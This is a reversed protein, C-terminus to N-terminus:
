REDCGETTDFLACGDVREARYVAWNRDPFALEWTIADTGPDVMRISSPGSGADPCFGCHGRTILVSGDPLRDADGWLPEFWGDETWEWAIQATGADPDLELEVVRSQGTGVGNDHILMRDGELEPDHQGTFWSGDLTFDLGRGLEWVIQGTPKDIRVVRDIGPLSILVDGDVESVANAHWPDSDLGPSPLWGADFASQSDWSWLEQNTEPDREVVRFGAWTRNGNTNDEAHLGLITGSPTLHAEHHWFRQKGQFSPFEWVTKGGLALKQPPLKGGGILLSRRGLVQAELGVSTDEEFPMHWRVRARDDVILLQHDSGGGGSQWTNFLTYSGWPDGGFSLDMPPLEAGQEDTDFSLDGSLQKGDRTATITCDYTTDALLGFLAGDIHTSRDWTRVHRDDGARCRVEIAAAPEVSIEFRRMHVQDADSRAVVELVMGQGRVRVRETDVPRCAVGCLVM